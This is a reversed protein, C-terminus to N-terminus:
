PRGNVPRAWLTDRGLSSASTVTLVSGGLVKISVVRTEQRELRAGPPTLQVDPMRLQWQSIIWAGGKLRAFEMDGGARDLKIPPTVHVFHYEVSRLETTRGDLILTGSIEPVNRREPSPEFEIVTRTSDSRGVRLCHDEM